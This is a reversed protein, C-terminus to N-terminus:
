ANSDLVNGALREYYLTVTTTYYPTFWLSALFGVYPLSSLLMWGLFSLDLKFLELKRGQTIRKSERLCDGVGYEPHDLLIYFAMSYRYAAIIGPVILLLSWLLVLLTIAVQLLLIRWARGFGDLLNGLAAGVGRVTNLTFLLFGVRVIALTLELMLNILYAAPSPGANVLINLAYDTNGQMIFRSCRELTEYSVGVLRSSLFSFFASLAIFLAAAAMPSPQATRILGKAQEKLLPRNYEM